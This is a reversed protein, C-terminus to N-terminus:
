RLYHVCLNFGAHHTKTYWLTLGRSITNYVFSNGRLIQSKIRIDKPICFIDSRWYFSPKSQM